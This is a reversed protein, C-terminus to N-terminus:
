LRGGRLEATIRAGGGSRNEFQLTGHHAEVIERCLALGLGFGGQERSRAKDVRYFAETLHKLAEEPIGRGQDEVTVRCGDPLMTLTFRIEGGQEMSKKANDALNLLLSRVLEPELLCKGEQCRSRLTIGAAQYLPSLREVLDRVLEAPSVETLALDGQRLVLLELLRRSLSELRRGESYIYDAAEAQEAETLAGSRLLQAYGILSTMPTKMEHAFSGVFREQRAVSEQLELVTCEMQEAMLNFDEAVAGVEDESRLPVRSAYEGSAIARSARSLSQLPATLVGALPYATVACLLSLVLFVRLYVSQQSRRMAYLASIDHVTHLYLTDHYTTVAGSLVLSREGGQGPLIQLLCAGPEPQQLQRPFQAANSEYLIEQGTSLRLASWASSNQQCLQEVAPVMEEPTMYPDMSNVIQLAGWVMRYSAFAAEKERNLSDRFSGSILLSGGIGFLISLLSLMCLTLKLRFKM